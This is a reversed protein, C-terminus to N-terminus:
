NMVEFHHHKAANVWTQEDLPCGNERAWKMVDLHGDKV